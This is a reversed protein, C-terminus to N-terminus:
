LPVGNCRLCRKHQNGMAPPGDIVWCGSSDGMCEIPRCVAREDRYAAYFEAPTDFQEKIKRRSIADIPRETV